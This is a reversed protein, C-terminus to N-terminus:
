QERPVPRALAYSVQRTQGQRMIRWGQPLADFSTGRPAELYIAAAPALWGRALAAIAHNLLTTGFPPDLFVVDYPHPLTTALWGIADAEVIEFRSAGFLGATARLSAAVVPDMEVLTAAAAGRSVAEFGLVGTGAFVDLCRAGPLDWMLWNFLTERVRDASPRVALGPPVPVYRGRWEGGIIRM